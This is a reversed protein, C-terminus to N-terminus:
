YSEKKNPFEHSEVDQHFRNFSELLTQYGNFYKRVFRPNFSNNMGLLDQMVLVQGDTNPGAGIGITPISLSETIIKAASSPICELVISFVGLEELKKSSQILHNVAQESKGQLKFGGFKHISQPTMGLHGMVPVGSEVIHKIIEEHGDIGEIKIANANAKMLIDVENMAQILGKRVSLFPMDATIFKKPAGKRVMKTHMAIMESTAPITSEEGHIVMAVSDGVLITDIESKEVILASTYDYCTIMSIKQKNIKKEQFDNIEKFSM